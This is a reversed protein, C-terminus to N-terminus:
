CRRHCFSDFVALDSLFGWTELLLNGVGLVCSRTESGKRAKQADMECPRRYAGLAEPLEEKMRQAMEGAPGPLM